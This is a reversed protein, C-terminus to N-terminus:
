NGLAANINASYKEPGYSNIEDCYAQWEADDEIDARGTVFDAVKQDAATTINTNIQSDEDAQDSTLQNTVLSTITGTTSYKSWNSLSRRRMSDYGRDIEQIAGGVIRQFIAAEELDTEATLEDTHYIIMDNGAEDQEINYAGDSLGHENYFENQIEAQIEDSFGRSRLLSGEYSYLYDIATLLAAIDKEEAKNTIIIPTDIEANAFYVTPENYKCSDDGYVDNIPQPAGVFMANELYPDDPNAIADGLLSMEGYCAGVKGSYTDASDINFFIDTTREDFSKDIWGNEYWAKMCEIYARFNDSTGGYQAVGDEDLYWGASAGFGSCFDGTGLYGPYYLTMVIGDTMGLEKEATAFIDLMWEWDSIYIPDTNGSPFVIDDEWESHDDNWGGTFAEGTEPNTGYELIWDRRYMFGGWMDSARDNMQYLQIIRREGDIDNTVSGWANKEEIYAMYNPMYQEVYDTIDLAIGEEYLKMASESSYSMSMVDPYEGTALLTNLYDSESGSPPTIFDVSIKKTEGDVDWDMDMWYQAVPNDEYEDYFVSSAGKDLLYTFSLADDSTSGSSGSTSGCGSLVTAAVTVAALTLAMGKKWNTM